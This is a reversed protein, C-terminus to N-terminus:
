EGEDELLVRLVELRPDMEEVRCGCPGQNLEKGCHPCIGRCDRSCLHKIPVSLLVADNILVNLDVTNEEILYADEEPVEAERPLRGGEGVAAGLGPRRYFEDVDIDLDQRYQKLCRTCEMAVSGWVRGKVRIGDPSSELWLDLRLGGREGREYM